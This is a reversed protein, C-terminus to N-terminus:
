DALKTARAILIADPENQRAEVLGSSMPCTRPITESAGNSNRMM